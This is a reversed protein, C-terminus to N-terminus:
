VQFLEGDGGAARRASINGKNKKISKRGRSIATEGGAGVPTGIYSRERLTTIVSAYTSPRGVGVRELEKIFSAESYRPSPQTSHSIATINTCSDLLKGEFISKPLINEMDSNGYAATYGPFVISSGSTRFILENNGNKGSIFVTTQNMIQPSMQSAFTRMYILNYLRLASPSFQSKTKPSSSLSNPHVFVGDILTPRIAEHAEQINQKKGTNRKSSKSPEIASNTAVYDIGHTDIITRQINEIADASLAANDTRMYSIYGGEYLSQACSM